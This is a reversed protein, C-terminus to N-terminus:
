EFSRKVYLHGSHSLFSYLTPLYKHINRITYMYIYILGHTGIKIYLSLRQQKFLKYLIAALRNLHAAVCPLVFCSTRSSKAVVSSDWLVFIDCKMRAGPETPETNQPPQTHRTATNAQTKKKKKWIMRQVIQQHSMTKKAGTPISIPAFQESMNM